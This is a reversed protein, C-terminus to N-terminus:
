NPKELNDNLLEHWVDTIDTLRKVTENFDTRDRVQQVLFDKLRDIM